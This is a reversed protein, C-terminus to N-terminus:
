VWSQKNNHYRGEIRNVAFSARTFIGPQNSQIDPQPPAPCLGTWNEEWDAQYTSLLALTSHWSPYIDLTPLM